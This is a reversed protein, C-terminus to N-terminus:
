FINGSKAVFEREEKSLLAEVKEKLALFPVQESVKILFLKNKFVSLDYLKSLFGFTANATGEEGPERKLLILIEKLIFPQYLEARLALVGYKVMEPPRNEKAYSAFIKQYVSALSASIVLTDNGKYMELLQLAQEFYQRAKIEDGKNYFWQGALYDVDPTDCGSKKARRYVAMFEEGSDVQRFCKSKLWNAFSYNKRDIEVVAYPNETARDYAAEAEELREAALLSDGLYAWMMYNDPDEELEKQIMTINRVDKKKENFESNAYGTHFIALTDIADCSYLQSGDSLDLYEHIRNRYRLKSYNRFIRYQVGVSMQKGSDDLHVWACKIVHPLIPSDTTKEVHLLSPILKKADEPIFYEDADLFAIWNGKAQEIAFNKAASFDNIWPFHYIKAGMEEAIEVTRDTSGTDVVIQEFVIGKGWSLAQRINKEENKVIMCQSLRISPKM